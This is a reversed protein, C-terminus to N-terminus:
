IRLLRSKKSNLLPRSKMLSFFTMNLWFKPSPNRKSIKWEIWCKLGGFVDFFLKIEMYFETWGCFCEFLFNLKRLDVNSYNISNLLLIVEYFELFDYNVLIKSRIGEHLKGKIWRKLGGFCRFIVKNGQLVWNM